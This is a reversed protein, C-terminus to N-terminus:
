QVSEPKENPSFEYEDDPIPFVYKDETPAIIVGQKVYFERFMRKYISFMRGEGIFDKRMERMLYELLEEDGYSGDLRALNRTERVDNLYELAKKNDKGIMTECAVYYVEALRLISVEPYYPLLVTGPYSTEYLKLFNYDGQSNGPIKQFWFRLRNDTGAGDPTRGYLDNLYITYQAATICFNSVSNGEDLGFTPETVEWLDNKYFGLLMEGGLNRDYLEDERSTLVFLENAKCEEIIEDAWKYAEDKNLLSLEVRMLLGKVAFLNMRDGRRELVSHFDLMSSNGDGYRKNEIIPDDKLLELAKLLDEKAKSLVSRMSEFTQATVNFEKRYAICDKDLDAATRIVPGFMSALEMHIFARLALAEGEILEAYKIENRNNELGELIYNTQAIGQYMKSWIANIKKKANADEYDFLSQKYYSNSSKASLDWYQALVDMMGFSLEKGYLDDSTLKYYVDNLAANYGKENTLLDKGEVQGQPTVDLWNNCASITLVAILILLYRYKM